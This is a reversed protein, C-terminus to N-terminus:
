VLVDNAPTTGELDGNLFRTTSRKEFAASETGTSTARNQAMVEWFEVSRGLSNEAWIVGVWLSLIPTEPSNKNCFKVFIAKGWPHSFAIPNDV